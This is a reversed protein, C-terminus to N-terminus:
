ELKLVGWMGLEPLIISSGDDTGQCDLAVPEKGPAFLAASSFSRQLMSQAITLRLNHVTEFRDSKPDYNSNLLHVVLPADQARPQHRPLVTINEAGTVGIDHGAKALLDPAGSWTALRERAEQLKAEQEETLHSPEFRVVARYSSLDAELLDDKIWEDGAVIIRYPLNAGSLAICAKVLDTRPASRNQGGLHGSSLQDGLFQRVAKNSFVLAVSAASEYDDFLAPYDRVFHYLDEYDGPKSHYWRDPEGRFRLTWMKEPAMFVHGHAYAQAIWLRIHGPRDNIRCPEFARPVGTIAVIRKLADALKFTYIPETPLIEIEPAQYQMENTYFDHADVAYMFEAWYYPSNSSMPVTDDFERAYRKFERFLGNIEKWQFDFYEKALPIVPPFALIRARYKEDTIGRERLYDGYDFTELDGIGGSMIEEESLSARLYDRFGAMCHRCFCGGYRANLAGITPIASDIMLWDTGAQMVRRLQYMLYHRYGPANTCYHYSPHGKYTHEWWTIAPRDNLDRVTSEMFNSDFDIMGMWDADLEVRGQFKVGCRHAEDVDRMMEEDPPLGRRDPEPLFGWGLGTARYRRYVEMGCPRTILVDSRKLTM